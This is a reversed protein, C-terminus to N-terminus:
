RAVQTSVARSFGPHLIPPFMDLYCHWKTPLSPFWILVEGLRRPGPKPPMPKELFGPALNLTGSQIQKIFFFSLGTHSSLLVQQASTLAATHILWLRCLLWLYTSTWRHDWHEPSPCFGQFLSGLWVVKFTLPLNLLSVRGTKVYLAYHFNVEARWM